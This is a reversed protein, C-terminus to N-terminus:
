QKEKDKADKEGAPPPEPPAGDKVMLAQLSLGGKDGKIVNFGVVRFGKKMKDAVEDEFQKSGRGDFMGVIVKCEPQSDDAALAPFSGLLVAACLICVAMSVTHFGSALTRRKNIM